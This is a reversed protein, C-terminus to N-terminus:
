GEDKKVRKRKPKDDVSNASDKFENSPSSVDCPDLQIPINEIKHSIIQEVKMLGEDNNDRAFKTEFEGGSNYVSLQNDDM